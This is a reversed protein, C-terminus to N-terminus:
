KLLENRLAELFDRDKYFEEWFREPLLITFGDFDDKVWEPEYTKYEGHTIKELAKTEDGDVRANVVTVVYDYLHYFKDRYTEGMFTFGKAPINYDFVHSFQIDKNFKLQYDFLRQTLAKVEMKESMLVLDHGENLWSYVCDIESLLIKVRADKKEKDENIQAQTRVMQKQQRSVITWGIMTVVVSLSSIIIALGEALSM